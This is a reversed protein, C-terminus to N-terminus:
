QRYEHSATRFYEYSKIQTDSQSRVSGGTSGSMNQMQIHKKCSTAIGSTKASPLSSLALFLFSGPVFLVM